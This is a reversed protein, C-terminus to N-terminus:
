QIANNQLRNQFNKTRSSRQLNPADVSKKSKGKSSFLKRPKVPSRVPSTAIVPAPPTTPFTKNPQTNLHRVLNIESSTDEESAININIPTNILNPSQPSYV